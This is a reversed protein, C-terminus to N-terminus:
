FHPDYYTRRSGIHLFAGSKSKWTGKFPDLAFTDESGNENEAYEYVASGDHASGSVITSTDERVIVERIQGIRLGSVFRRVAVITAATRDSWHLITAPDGVKPDEKHATSMLNNVLSGTRM